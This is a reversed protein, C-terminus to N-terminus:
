GQGSSVSSSSLFPVVYKRYSKLEVLLRPDHATPDTWEIVEPHAVLAKLEAVSLRQHLILHHRFHNNTSLACPPLTAPPPVCLSSGKSRGRCLRRRRRTRTRRTATSSKERALREMRVWAMSRFVDVAAGNQTLKMTAIPLSSLSPSRVAAGGEPDAEPQFHAFIASFAAYNPDEPDM